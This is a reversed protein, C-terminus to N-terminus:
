GLVTRLELTGDETVGSFAFGSGEFLTVSRSNGPLVRAVVVTPSNQSAKLRGLARNLLIRSLGQSQYDPAVAISVESEDAGIRDFRCYGYPVYTSGVLLQGIFCRTKGTMVNERFWLSHDKETVPEPNSFNSRLRPDNRWALLLSEDSSRAKRLKTIM